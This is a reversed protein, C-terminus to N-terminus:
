KTKDEKDVTKTKQQKEEVKAKLTILGSDILWEDSGMAAMYQNTDFNYKAKIDNPLSNFLNEIKQMEQKAQILNNPIQTIDAYIGDARFDSMDGVAVRKLINEIKTAELEAQIELYQNREGTKVLNKRGMHDIEYGYENEIESGSECIYRIQPTYPCRFPITKAAAM